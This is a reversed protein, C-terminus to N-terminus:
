EELICQDVDPRCRKRGAAILAVFPNNSFDIYSNNTSYLRVKPCVTASHTKHRENKSNVNEECRPLNTTESQESRRTACAM